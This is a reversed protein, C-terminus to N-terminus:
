VIQCIMRFCWKYKVATLFSIDTVFNIICIGKEKSHTNSEETILTNQTNMKRLFM